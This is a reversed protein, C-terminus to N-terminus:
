KKFVKKSEAEGPNEVRLEHDTVLPLRTTTSLGSHVKPGKPAMKIKFPANETGRKHQATMNVSSDMPYTKTVEPPDEEAKLRDAKAEM